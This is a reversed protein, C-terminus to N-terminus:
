SIMWIIIKNAIAWDIKAWYQNKIAWMIQGRQKQLDTIWLSEVLELIVAHTQEESMVEPLYVELYAINQEELSVNESDGQQALFMISEKRTKIEKKLVTIVEDDSPDKWLDIAKNQLQAKVFNLIDKKIGNRAKFAEKWDHQITEYLNM